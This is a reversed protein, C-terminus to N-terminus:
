LGSAHLYFSNRSQREVWPDIFVTRGDKRILRWMGERVNPQELSRYFDTSELAADLAELTDFSAIILYEANDGGDIVILYIDM